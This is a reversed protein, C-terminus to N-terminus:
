DLAAEFARGAAAQLARLGVDTQSPLVLLWASPGICLIGDGASRGPPPLATAGAAATVADLDSGARAGELHLLMGVRAEGITIAAGPSPSGFPPAESLASRALEQEPM